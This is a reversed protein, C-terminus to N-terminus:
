LRIDERRRVHVFTGGSLPDAQRLGGFDLDTLKEIQEIPVQYTEFQGYVFELDGGILDEQTQLYATASLSTGDKIMVAVKWFQDPIKADRYSVDDQRFVPGTFVSIKMGFERANDLLYDELDLWAKQNFNKHQPSCNTFHFTHENAKVADIGWNPDRRRVLHGRDIDNSQYFEPGIQYAEEIRPDFYWRDNGRKVDVLQDGDINVATYFALRRSKSMAISFHTYDLVTKGDVTQATDKTLAKGLVPLPVKFGAGLFAPDYGSVGAYWDASLIGVEMPTTSRGPMVVALLKDLLKRSRENELGSRKDSLHQIISSIRIGENAIWRNNDTPDPIGAHHLAVVMWQDNFVPSGSSGPETDSVYHIFDSSIFKVENERITIAKPGGNPHQIITVYEGELIKGPKPLLPLYGFDALSVASLNNEEVAVLTFDLAEDTVFLAEPDLRFSIIELPMFQVDDEYNFEAVAYMAAEATELVHNNTLLLNPAVLFGTGYGELQGSRGRISIRCVAKSVNLGAQLHAIPFLDSKNIIREMALNDHHNIISSRTIMKETSTVQRNEANHEKEFALYRKLAEQQIQGMKNVM